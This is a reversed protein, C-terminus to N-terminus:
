LILGFDFRSYDATSWAASIFLPMELNREWVGATKMVLDMLTANLFFEGICFLEVSKMDLEIGSQFQDRNLYLEKANLDM